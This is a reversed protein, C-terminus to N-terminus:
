GGTDNEDTNEIVKLKTVPVSRILLKINDMNIDKGKGEATYELIGGSKNHDEASRPNEIKNYELFAHVIEHSITHTRSSETRLSNIQMGKGIRFHGFRIIKGGKTGISKDAMFVKELTVFKKTMKGSEAQIWNDVDKKLDQYKDEASIDDANYTKINFRFEVLNADEPNDNNKLGINVKDHVAKKVKEVEDLKFHVSESNESVGIYVDMQFVHTM